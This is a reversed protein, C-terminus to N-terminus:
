CCCVSKSLPQRLEWAKAQYFRCLLCTFLTASLLETFADTGYADIYWRALDLSAMLPYSPSSSQVMALRQRLLERHIRQGQVHLMAGMTM